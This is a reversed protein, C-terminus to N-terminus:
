PEYGKSIFQFYLMVPKSLIIKPVGTSYDKHKAFLKMEIWRM